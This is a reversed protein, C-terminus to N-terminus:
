FYANPPLRMFMHYIFTSKHSITIQKKESKEVIMM